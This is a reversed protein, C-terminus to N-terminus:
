FGTVFDGRVPDWGNEFKIRISTATKWDPGDAVHFHIHPESSNGSNGALGLVDGASVEDGVNVKVSDKQFHAIISYENNEHEIIVHNGLPQETNTDVTPTNDEINNEVSVVVGHNPAIVEKGFAYYSENVAPNGDFSSDGQTIVLDYAYRQSEVAYHYNVLENTGGWFTFWEENVPMQYTNETYQEDTEPYSTIPLFLLGEITLDESFYSRIGKDEKDNMWQYEILGQVPVKSVLEFYEVGENFSSGLEKFQEITVNEQFEESAQGYIRDFDGNILYEPLEEANIPEEVVLNEEKQDVMEEEGETNCATLVFSILLLLYIKIRRKM